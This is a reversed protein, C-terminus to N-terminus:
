HKTSMFINWSFRLSSVALWEALPEKLIHRYKAWRNVFEESPPEDRHDDHVHSNHDYSIESQVPRLLGDPQPAQVVREHPIMDHHAASSSGLIEASQESPLGPTAGLEPAPQTQGNPVSASVKKVQSQDRRMGPRVVRPLPKALGWLPTDNNHGYRPNLDQYDPDVYVRDSAPQYTTSGPGALSHSPWQTITNSSPGNRVLQPEPPQSRYSLSRTETPQRRMINRWSGSTVPLDPRHAPPGSGQPRRDHEIIAGDDSQHPFNLPTPEKAESSKRGAHQEPPSNTEKITELPPDAAVQRDTEPPASGM